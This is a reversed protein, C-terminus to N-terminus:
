WSLYIWFPRTFAASTADPVDPSYSISASHVTTFLANSDFSKAPSFKPCNAAFMDFNAASKHTFAPFISIFSILIQPASISMCLLLAFGADKCIQKLLSLVSVIPLSQIGMVSQIYLIHLTKDEQSRLSLAKDEHSYYYGRFNIETDYLNLIM